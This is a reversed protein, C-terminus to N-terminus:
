LEMTYSVYYLQVEAGQFGELNGLEALVNVALGISPFKINMGFSDLGM